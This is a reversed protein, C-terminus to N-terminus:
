LSGKRELLSLLKFLVNTRQQLLAIFTPGKHGTEGDGDLPNTNNTQNENEKSQHM